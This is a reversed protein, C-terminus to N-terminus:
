VSRRWQAADMKTGCTLFQAAPGEGDGCPGGAGTQNSRVPKYCLPRSRVLAAISEALRCTPL